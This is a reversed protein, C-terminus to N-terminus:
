DEKTVRLVEDISTVGTMVQEFGNHRISHSQKRAIQELEQASAHNHIANRMDSDIQILEYIGM